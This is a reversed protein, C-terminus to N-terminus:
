QLTPSRNSCDIFRECEEHHRKKLRL